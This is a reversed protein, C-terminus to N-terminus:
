DVNTLEQAKKAMARFRAVNNKIGRWDRENVTLIQVEPFEAFRAKWHAGAGPALSVVHFGHTEYGKLQKRLPKPIKM